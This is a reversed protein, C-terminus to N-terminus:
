EKGRMTVWKSVEAFDMPRLATTGYPKATTTTYQVEPQEVWQWEGGDKRVKLAVHYKFGGAKAPNVNEMHVLQVQYGADQYAAYQSLVIHRCLPKATYTTCSSVTVLAIFLILTKM